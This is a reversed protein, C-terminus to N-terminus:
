FAIEGGFGAPSAPEGLKKSHKLSFPTKKLSFHTKLPPFPPKM